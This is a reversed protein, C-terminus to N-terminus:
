NACRTPPADPRACIPLEGSVPAPADRSRCPAAIRSAHAHGLRDAFQGVAHALDEAQHDLGIELAPQRDPRLRQGPRTLRDGAEIRPTICSSSSRPSSVWGCVEAPRIGVSLPSRRNTSPIMCAAAGSGRSRRSISRCITRSWGISSASAAAEAASDPRDGPRRRPARASAALQAELLEVEHRQAVVRASATSTPASPLTSFRMTESSPPCSARRREVSTLLKMLARRDPRVSPRPRLAAARRSGRACPLSRRRRPRAPRKPGRRRSGPGHAAGPASRGRGPWDSRRRRRGLVEVAHPPQEVLELVACSIARSSSPARSAGPQRIKM